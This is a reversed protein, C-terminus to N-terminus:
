PAGSPVTSLVVWAGLLSVFIIGFFTLADIRDGLAYMTFNLIERM